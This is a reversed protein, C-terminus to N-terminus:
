VDIQGASTGDYVDINHLMVSVDKDEDSTEKDKRLSPFVKGPLSATNISKPFSRGCIFGIIFYAASSILTLSLIIFQM